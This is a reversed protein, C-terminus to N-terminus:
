SMSRSTSRVPSKATVNLILTRSGDWGEQRLLALRFGPSYMSADLVFLLQEQSAAEGRRRSGVGRRGEENTWGEGQVVLLAEGEGRRLDEEKFRALPTEDVGGVGVVVVVMTVAATADFVTIVVAVVM